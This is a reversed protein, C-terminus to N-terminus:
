HELKNLLINHGVTDFAKSFDLFVGLVYDGKNIHTAIKDVLHVLAMCASCKKKKKKFGFQYYFLINHKNIFM